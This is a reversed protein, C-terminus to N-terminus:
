SIYQFLMQQRVGPSTCYNRIGYTISTHHTLCVWIKPYNLSFIRRFTGCYSLSFFWLHAVCSSTVFEQCHIRNRINVCSLVGLDQCHGTPATLPLFLCVPWLLPTPGSANVCLSSAAIREEWWSEIIRPFSVDMLSLQGFLPAFFVRVGPEALLWLM